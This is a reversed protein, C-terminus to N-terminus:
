RAVHYWFGPSMREFQFTFRDPQGLHMPISSINPNLEPSSVDEKAEAADDMDMHSGIGTGRGAYEDGQEAYDRLRSWQFPPLGGDTTPGNVAVAELHLALSWSTVKTDYCGRLETFGKDLDGRGCVACIPHGESLQM